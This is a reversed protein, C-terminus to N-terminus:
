LIKIRQKNIVKIKGDNELEKLIPLSDSNSGRLNRLEQKFRERSLSYESDYEDIGKRLNDLLKQYLHPLEKKMIM